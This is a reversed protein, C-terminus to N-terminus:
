QSFIANSAVRKQHESTRKYSRVALSRHGTIEQIVQEEIDNRYMRTASTARLSHNTYFGPLGAKECVNKVVERLTNVGVAKNLFWMGPRFKRRAQLYFAKCTRDKPLLSLYKMIIRVPCREINNTQYVEVSKPETKRHKLGGKNTKLGIDEVYRLFLKGQSDYLFSFQSSFPPSRLVRHEKGARLSCSLGLMFVVTNLLTQPSDTGLLGLSWLLDEDTFTLVEAQKVAIGVGESTRQKMLNDVTFRLDRFSDQSLLKWSYGVTELYFQLCIVIDYLTRAPFDSGNVKKVETIFRTLGFVLSEESVTSLDNLDCPIYQLGQNHRYERWENYMKVVWRVKKMTEDSFQKRTFSVLTDNDLPAKYKRKERFTFYLYIVSNFM